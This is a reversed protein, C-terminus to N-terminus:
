SPSGQDQPRGGTVGACNLAAALEEADLNYIRAADAVTEFQAFPCGVCSMAREVFVGAAAPTSALVDAVLMTLVTGQAM